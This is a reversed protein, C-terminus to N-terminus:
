CCSVPKATINIISYDIGATAAITWTNSSPHYTFQNNNNIITGQAFRVKLVKRTTATGGQNPTIYYWPSWSGPTGASDGKQFVCRTPDLECNGDVGFSAPLTGSGVRDMWYLGGNVVQGYCSNCGKQVNFSAPLSPNQMSFIWLIEAERLEPKAEEITGSTNEVVEEKTCGVAFFMMAAMVGLSITKLFNTKM